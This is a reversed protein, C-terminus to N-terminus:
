KQKVRSESKGSVLTEVFDLPKPANERAKVLKVTAKSTKKGKNSREDPQALFTL